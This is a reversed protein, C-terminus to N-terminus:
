SMGQLYLAAPYGPQWALVQAYGADATDRDGRQHAAVASQWTRALTAADPSATAPARFAAIAAELTARSALTEDVLPAVNPVAALSVLRRAPRQALLPGTAADLGVCDLLL